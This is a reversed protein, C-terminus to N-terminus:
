KLGGLIENLLAALRAGALVIRERIVAEARRQYALPLVVIADPVTECAFGDFKYAVTRAYQNSERAWDGPNTSLSAAPMERAMNVMKRVIVQPADGHPVIAFASGLLENDWVGHLTAKGRTQRGELAVQVDNGGRDKNDAAHLPQHLDGVLHAIWKLAENRERIPRSQDRLLAALEVIQETACAGRPCWSKGDPLAGCIPIDDFHWM